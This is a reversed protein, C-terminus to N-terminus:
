IDRKRVLSFVKGRIADKNIVGFTRSDKSSITLDDSMIFYSGEPIEVEEQQVDTNLLEGTDEDIYQTVDKTYVYKDRDAVIRGVYQKDNVTYVVVDNVHYTDSFLIRQYLLVDSFQIAPRMNFDRQLTVGFLVFLLIFLCVAIVIIKTIFRKLTRKFEVKDENEEQRDKSDLDKEVENM